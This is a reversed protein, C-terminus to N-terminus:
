KDAEEDPQVATGQGAVQGETTPKEADTGPQITSEGETSETPKRETM